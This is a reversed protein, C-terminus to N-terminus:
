FPDSPADKDILNPHARKAIVTAIDRPSANPGGKEIADWRMDMIEHGYSPYIIQALQFSPAESARTVQMERIANIVYTETEIEEELHLRDPSWEPHGRKLFDQFGTEIFWQHGMEHIFALQTRLPDIQFGDQLQVLGVFTNNKSDSDVEVISTKLIRKLELMFDLTPSQRGQSIKRM